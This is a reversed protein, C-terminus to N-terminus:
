RMRVLRKPYLDMKHGCRPCKIKGLKGIFVHKCKECKFDFTLREETEDTINELIKELSM